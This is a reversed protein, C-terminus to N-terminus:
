AKKHFVQCASNSVGVQEYMKQWKEALKQIDLNSQLIEDGEACKEQKLIDQAQRLLASELETVCLLDITRHFVLSDVRFQHRVLVALALSIDVICTWRGVPHM